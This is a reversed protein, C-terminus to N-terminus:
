SLYYEEAPARLNYNSSMCRGYAGANAILLIDGECTKPLLRSYGLTDGSECISGVINAMITKTEDFRTLNVIEHYSGYLAPRILSNMGTEIGIFYHEGKQKVQTVKALIVGASGVLFRGPEILIQLNPYASKVEAISHNVAVLDLSKQGPKEVIGLGGGVNIIKVDPFKGLLNTLVLATNKWNDSQLIGSGSHAHLGIVKVSIKELVGCLDDVQTLPIGFKSETGGTSVYKHHGAGHGPDIRVLIEKENFVEPWHQLPHLNDVTVRIGLEFAREYEKKPAFNPTFLIASRDIDPFLHLVKEIEGTSVCEFGLNNEYFRELIDAHNNAKMAYFIHSIADCKKLQRVSEDLTNQDYVYLPSNEEAIELLEVRRKQWWPIPGTVAKGFEEQWSRSLYYSKPNQEILLTHIKQALREVQDEDVVFTLNLDNAAQSLLHIKQAEFVEFLGGLQHIISRINRGILSISACPGILTARAFQNLEQLLLDIAHEDQVHKVVDLSVTVNSESTSILDISLNYQKFCNFIKALFGVQQWMRVTEISILNVNYKTAISKIPLGVPDGELSILTGEHDPQRAYKVHLPIQHTRLPAACKPHLVKAGMSSIEQAEDYDLYKLLRAQPIQHPNATYIGPM